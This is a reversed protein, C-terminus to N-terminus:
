SEDLLQVSNIMMWYVKERLHGIVCLKDEELLSEGELPWYGNIKAKPCIIVYACM